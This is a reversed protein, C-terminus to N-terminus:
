KCFEQIQEKAEKIKAQRQEETHRQYEGDEGKWRSRPNEQLRTLNNRAGKCNKDKIGQEEKEQQSKQKALERDERLDELRQQQENLKQQAKAPPIAPPPPQKIVTVEGKPPPSQTYHTIGEEDVWRYM